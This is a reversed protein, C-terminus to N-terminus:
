RTRGRLHVCGVNRGEDLSALDVTDRKLLAAVVGLDVGRSEAVDDRLVLINTRRGREERKELEDKRMWLEGLVGEAVEDDGGGRELVSLGVRDAESVVSSRDTDSGTLLGADVAGAEGTGLGVSPPEAVVGTDEGELPALADLAGVARVTGVDENGALDEVGLLSSALALLPLREEFRTLDRSREGSLLFLLPKGLDLALHRQTRVREEGERVVDPPRSARSNSVKSGGVSRDHIVLDDLGDVLRVTDVNEGVEPASEM